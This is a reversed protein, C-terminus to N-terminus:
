PYIRLVGNSNWLQNIVLGNTSTPVEEFLLRSGYVKYPKIKEVYVPSRETVANLTYIAYTGATGATVVIDKAPTIGMSYIEGSTDFSQIEEPSTIQRADYAAFDDTDQASLLMRDQLIPFM